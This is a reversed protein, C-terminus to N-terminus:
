LADARMWVDQGAQGREHLRHQAEVQARRHAVKGPSGEGGGDKGGGGVGAPHSHKVQGLVAPRRGAPLAHHALRAQRAEGEVGAVRHQQHAVLGAAHVAQLQGGIQTAAEVPTLRPACARMRM